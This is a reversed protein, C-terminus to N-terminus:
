NPRRKKYTLKWSDESIKSVPQPYKDFRPAKERTLLLAIRLPVRVAEPSKPVGRAPRPLPFTSIARSDRLRPPLRLHNWLSVPFPTHPMISSSQSVMSVPSFPTPM